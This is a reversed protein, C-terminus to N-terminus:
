KAETGWAEIQTLAPFPSPDNEDKKMECMTISTIAKKVVAIHQRQATKKLSVTERTGDSFKLVASHWWNDHPFDARITIVVEDIDVKRGFDVTIEADDQRNIGWSQYPYYGHSSNAFVGDIANRSAFVSENRTEVNAHSHPFLGTNRHHDYVNLCLNKRCEIEDETAYRVSLLHWNLTFSRPCYCVKDEGFPIPLVYEGASYVFTPDFTDELKVVLYRSPDSTLKIVDGQTYEYKYFLEASDTGQAAAKVIGDNIIEIKLPM